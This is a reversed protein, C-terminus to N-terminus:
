KIKELVRKIPRYEKRLESCIADKAQNFPVPNVYSGVIHEREKETVFGIKNRVNTGKDCHLVNGNADLVIHLLRSEPVHNKREIVIQLNEADSKYGISVRDSENGDVYAESLQTWKGSKQSFLDTISYDNTPIKISM